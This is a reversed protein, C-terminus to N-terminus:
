LCEIVALNAPPLKINTLTSKHVWQMTQQEMPTTLAQDDICHFFHIEVHKEPYQHSVSILHIAKRPIYDLEEKLERQLADTLSEEAEVKGGPFEWFGALHKGHQRRTLLVHGQSDELVLAVVQVYKRDILESPRSM